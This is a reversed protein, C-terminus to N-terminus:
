APQAEMKQLNQSKLTKILTELGLISIVRKFNYCLVTLKIETAVNKLGKMLLREHGMAVKITGFPHEVLAKRRRAIDPNEALRAKLRDLVAHHVWRRIKRGTKSRTCQRRMPCDSCQKTSYLFFEWRSRASNTIGKSQPTMEAGQPCVYLDREEDYKFLERSFLGRQEADKADRIPVYATINEDECIKIAENSFYGGDAVVNLEEVGLGHKARRAMQPLLAQDAAENTVEVDVILKHKSDVATQVNYCVATGKATKMLRADPDTLSRQREGNAKMEAMLSEDRRMAEQMRAIREKLEEATL